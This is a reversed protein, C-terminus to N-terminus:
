HKSAWYDSYLQNLDKGCTTSFISDSYTNDALANSVNKIIKNGCSGELWILFDATCQMKDRPGDNYNDCHPYSWSTTFGFVFRGFESTGEVIWVVYNPAMMIAHVEEHVIAGDDNPHSNFWWKNFYMKNGATYAPVGNSQDYTYIEISSTPHSFGMRNVLQQYYNNCVTVAHQALSSTDQTSCPTTSATTTTSFVTSSSTSSAYCSSLSSKIQNTYGAANFYWVSSVTNYVTCSQDLTSGDLWYAVKIGKQQATNVYWQFTNTGPSIYWEGSIFDPQGGGNLFNSIASQYPEAIGIFINPNIQKAATKYSNFQSPTMGCCLIREDEEIFDIGLNAERKVENM